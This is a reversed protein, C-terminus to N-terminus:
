DIYSIVCECMYSKTNSTHSFRLFVDGVTSTGWYYNCTCTNV